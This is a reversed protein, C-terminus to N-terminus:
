AGSGNEPRAAMPRGGKIALREATPSLVTPEATAILTAGSYFGDMFTRIKTGNPDHNLLQCRQHSLHCPMTHRAIVPCSVATVGDDRTPRANQGGLSTDQTAAKRNRIASEIIPLDNPRSARVPEGM